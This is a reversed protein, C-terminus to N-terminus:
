CRPELDTGRFTLRTRKPFSQSFSFQAEMKEHTGTAILGIENRPRVM